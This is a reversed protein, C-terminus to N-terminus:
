SEVRQMTAQLGFGHLARVDVEIAERSGTAVVAHGDYHVRLMLATARRESYGFYSRFVYAVYNMLNVPDNWVVARWQSRVSVTEDLAEPARELSATDGFAAVVLPLSTRADVTSEAPSVM